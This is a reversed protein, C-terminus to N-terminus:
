LNSCHQQSSSGFWASLIKELTAAPVNCIPEQAKTNDYWYYRFFDKMNISLDSLCVLGREDGCWWFLVANFLTFGWFFVYISQYVYFWLTREDVFFCFACLIISSSSSSSWMWDMNKKCLLAEHNNMWEVNKVTTPLQLTYSTNWAAIETHSTVEIRSDM